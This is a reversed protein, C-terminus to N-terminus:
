RPEKRHEDNGAPAGRRAARKRDEIAERELLRDLVAARSGGASLATRPSLTPIGHVSVDGSVWRRYRRVTQLAQRYLGSALRPLPKPTQGPPPGRHGSQVASRPLHVTEGHRMATPGGGRCGRAKRKRQSGQAGRRCRGCAGTSDHGPLRLAPVDVRAARLSSRPPRRRPCPRTGNGLRRRRIRDPPRSRRPSDRRRTM